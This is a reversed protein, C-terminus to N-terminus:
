SPPFICIHTCSTGSGAIPLFYFYYFIFLHIFAPQFNTISPSHTSHPRGVTEQSKVSPLIASSDIMM